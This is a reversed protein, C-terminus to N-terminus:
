ALTRQLTCRPQGSNDRGIGLPASGCSKSISAIQRASPTFPLDDGPGVEGGLKPHRPPEVPGLQAVGGGARFPYDQIRANRETRGRERVLLAICQRVSAM